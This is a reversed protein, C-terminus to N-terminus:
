EIRWTSQEEATWCHGKPRNDIITFDEARLREARQGDALSVGTNPLLIWEENTGCSEPLARSRSSGSAIVILPSGGSLAADIGPEFVGRIWVVDEDTANVVVLSGSGLQSGESDFPILGCGSLSALLAMLFITVGTKM